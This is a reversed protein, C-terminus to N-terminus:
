ERNGGIIMMNGGPANPGNSSKNGCRRNSQIILTSWTILISGTRFGGGWVCAEVLNMPRTLVLVCPARLGDCGEELDIEAIGRLVSNRYM